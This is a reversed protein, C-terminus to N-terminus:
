FGTGSFYLVHIEESCTFNIHTVKGARFCKIINERQAQTRDAHIVEVNMGEYILEHFLEKARDKSQVFVLLPPSFGQVFPLTYGNLFILTFFLNVLIGDSFKYRHHLCNQEVKHILNRMALLKGSEQGVFLLEQKM